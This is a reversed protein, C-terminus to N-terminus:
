RRPSPTQPWAAFRHPAPRGEGDGHEAGPRTQRWEVVLRQVGEEDLEPHRRRIQQRKMAEAVEYLDLALRFRRQVAPDRITPKM